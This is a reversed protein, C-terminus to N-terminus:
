APMGIPKITRYFGAQPCSKKKGAPSIMDMSSVQRSVTLHFHNGKLYLKLVVMM